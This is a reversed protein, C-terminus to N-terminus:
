LGAKMKANVIKITEELNGDMIAQEFVEYMVLKAELRSCRDRLYQNNSTLERNETWVYAVDIMYKYAQTMRETAQKFALYTKDDEGRKEKLSLAFENIRLTAEILNHPANHRISSRGYKEFEEGYSKRLTILEDLSYEVITNNGEKVFEM